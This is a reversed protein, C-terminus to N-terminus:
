GSAAHPRPSAPPPRPPSVVIHMRLPVDGFSRFTDASGRPAFLSQGPGHQRRVGDIEFEARGDLVSFWEDEDRHRHLPPGGGVPTTEELMAFAARSQRGSVLIRITEGFIHLTQITDTDSV